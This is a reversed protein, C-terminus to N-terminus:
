YSIMFASTNSVINDEEEEKKADDFECDDDDTDICTQDLINQKAKLARITGNPEAHGAISM